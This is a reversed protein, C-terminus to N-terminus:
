GLRPAHHPDPHPPATHLYPKSEIRPIFRARLPTGTRQVILSGEPRTQRTM